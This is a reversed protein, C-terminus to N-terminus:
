NGEELREHALRGLDTLEYCDKYRNHKLFGRELLAGLEKHLVVASTPWGMKARLLVAQYREEVQASKCRELLWALADVASRDGFALTM